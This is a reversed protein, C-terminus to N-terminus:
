LVMRVVVKGSCRACVRRSIRLGSGGLLTAEKRMSRRSCLRAWRIDGVRRTTASKLRSTRSGWHFMSIAWSLLSRLRLRTTCHRTTSTLPQTQALACSSTYASGSASKTRRGPTRTPGTSWSTGSGPSSASQLTASLSTSPPQSDSHGSLNTLHSIGRTRACLSPIRIEFPFLLCSAGKNISHCHIRSGGGDWVSVV